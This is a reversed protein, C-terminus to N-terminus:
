RRKQSLQFVDAALQTASQRTAHALLETRITGGAALHRDYPLVHVGAGTATLKATAADLDLGTHPATETLVVITGAIVHRPLGRVWELVAYTSAVGELTAPAVLVRAQAASLAVRAVEAPLTECDVVTVGFYRRLSVMVKEYSRLDLMAGIQGQSGPLLWANDPLQVLYGTVDLLSMQPEVIGAVDGTTWRLSQAGLRLPLSGLAPDAEILLTPDHRYHAYTTGLLAAVTTKGAGGRISTVAIQRGTTVAQQLVEATATSRAVERAASSSVTRRVARLARATLSEGHRPKLGAAVLDKEVVPRSDPTRPRAAGAPGGPGASPRAQAQPPQPTHPYPANQPHPPNQPPVHAQQPHPAPGPTGPAPAGAGAPPQAGAGPQAGQASAAGGNLDRLVDSQWNDGNPM